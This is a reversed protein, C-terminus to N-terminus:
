DPLVTVVLRVAAKSADDLYKEHEAVKAAEKYCKEAGPQDKALVYLTRSPFGPVEARIKYRTLGAPARELPDVVRPQPAPAAVSPGKPEKPPAKGAPAAPKVASEAM